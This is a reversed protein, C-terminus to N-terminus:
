IHCMRDNDTTITYCINVITYSETLFFYFCNSKYSYYLETPACPSPYDTQTIGTFSHM